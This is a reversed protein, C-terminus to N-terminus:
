PDIEEDEWKGIVTGLVEFPEFIAPHQPNLPKLWIREGDQMFAKFTVRGSKLEKAIIRQGTSPARKEPDVFIISGKPYSKGYPAAMSDGEVRLAYANKSHPKSCLLWDEADGPHFSDHAEHWTGARIWSILPVSGRIRPGLTVTANVQSGSQVLRAAAVSVAMVPKIPRADPLWQEGVEEQLWEPNLGGLSRCVHLVKGSPVKGRVKWNNLSQSTEGIHRAFLSDKWGLEALTAFLRDASGGM